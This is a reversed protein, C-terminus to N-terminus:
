VPIPTKKKKQKKEKTQKEKPTNKPKQVVRLFVNEAPLWSVNLMSKLLAAWSKAIIPAPMPDGNRTAFEGILPIAENRADNQWVRRPDASADLVNCFHWPM